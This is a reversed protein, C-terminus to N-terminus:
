STTTHFRWYLTILGFVILLISEGAVVIEYFPLWVLLSPITQFHSVFGIILKFLLYGGHMLAWIGVLGILTHYKEVSRQMEFLLLSTLLVFSAYIESLFGSFYLASSPWMSFADSIRINSFHIATEILMYVAGFLLFGRIVTSLKM